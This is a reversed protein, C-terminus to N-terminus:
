GGGKKRGRWHGGGKIRKDEGELPSSYLHPYEPSSYLLPYRGRIRPYKTYGSSSPITQPAEIGDRHM